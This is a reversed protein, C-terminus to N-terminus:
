QAYFRHGDYCDSGWCYITNHRELYGIDSGDFNFNGDRKGSILGTYV